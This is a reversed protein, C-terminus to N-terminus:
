DQWRRNLLGVDETLAFAGSIARSVFTQAQEISAKLPLGVALGAAIASALTCGTGRYRGQFRDLRWTMPQDGFLQNIVDPTQADGGTVLVHRVGQALLCRAARATDAEGTLASLELPNPTLLFTQPWLIEWAAPDPESLQGGGGAALVPDVVWPVDRPLTDLVDPSWIGGAAGLKVARVDFHRRLARVQGAVLAPSVPHSALCRVGDQVTLCTAVPLPHCGLATLTQIDAQLGAGGSPDLGGLVLVAAPM